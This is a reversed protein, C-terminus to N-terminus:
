QRIREQIQRSMTDMYLALTRGLETSGLDESMSDAADAFAAALIVPTATTLIESVVDERESPLVDWAFLPASIAALAEAFGPIDAHNM